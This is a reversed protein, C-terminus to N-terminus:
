KIKDAVGLILPLNEALKVLISSKDGGLTRANEDIRHYCFDEIDAVMKEGDPRLAIRINRRDPDDQVKSVLKMEELRSIMRSCKFMPLDLERAVDNLHVQPNRRLYQLAYIEEYDLGFRAALGHEYHYLSRLVLYLDEDVKTRSNNTM